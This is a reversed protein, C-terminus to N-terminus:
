EFTLWKSVQSAKKCLDISNKLRESLVELTIWELGLRSFRRFNLSNRPLESLVELTLWESGLFAKLVKSFDLSNMSRESLM